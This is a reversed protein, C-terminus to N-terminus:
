DSNDRPQALFTYWLPGTSFDDSAPRFSRTPGRVTIPPTSSESSRPSVPESSVSLVRDSPSKPSAADRAAARWARALATQSSHFGFPGSMPSTLRLQAPVAHHRAFRVVGVTSSSKALHQRNSRLVFYQRSAVFSSLSYSSFGLRLTPAGTSPSTGGAADPLDLQGAEGRGDEARLARRALLRWGRHRWRAGSGASCRRAIISLCRARM